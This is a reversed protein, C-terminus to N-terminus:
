HNKLWQRFEQLAQTGQQLGYIVYQQGQYELVVAPTQRVGMQWATVIGTYAQKFQELQSVSLNQIRQLAHQRAAKSSVPLGLSFQQEFSKTQDLNFHKVPHSRSLKKDSVPTKDTDFIWIQDPMIVHTQAQVQTQAQAIVSLSLSLGALLRVWLLKSMNHSMASM